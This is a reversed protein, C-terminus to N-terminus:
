WTLSLGAQESVYSSSQFKAHHMNSYNYHKGSLSHCIRQASQASSKTTLIWWHHKRAELGMYHVFYSVQGRPLLVNKMSLEVSCPIEIAISIFSYYRCIFFNRAKLIESTTTIMSIFTLFALLQQCKLM